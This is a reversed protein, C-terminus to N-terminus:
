TQLIKIEENKKLKPFICGEFNALLYLYIYYLAYKSFKNNTCYLKLCDRTM